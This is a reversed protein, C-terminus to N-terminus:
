EHGAPMSVLYGFATTLGQDAQFIDGGSDEIRAAGRPGAMETVVVSPTQQTLELFFLGETGADVSLTVALRTTGPMVPEQHHTGPFVDAEGAGPFFLKKMEFAIRTFAPINTGLLIQSFKSGAHILM